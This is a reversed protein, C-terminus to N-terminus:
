IWKHNFYSWTHAANKFVLLHKLLCATSSCMSNKVCREHWRATSIFDIRTHSDGDDKPRKLLGFLFCSLLNWLVAIFQRSLLILKQLRFHFCFLWRKEIYIKLIFLIFSWFICAGKFSFESWKVTSNRLSAIFLIKHLQQSLMRVNNKQKQVM